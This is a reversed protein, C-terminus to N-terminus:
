VFLEERNQLVADLLDCGPARYISEVSAKDAHAAYRDRRRFHRMEWVLCLAAICLTAAIRGRAPGAQM